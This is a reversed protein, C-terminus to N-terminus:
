AAYADAIEPASYAPEPLSVFGDPRTRGPAGHQGAQTINRTAPTRLNPCVGARRPSDQGPLAAGTTVAAGLALSLWSKGAGPDGVM